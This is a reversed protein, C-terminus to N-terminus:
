FYTVTEGCYESLLNNALKSAGIRFYEPTIAEEGLVGKVLASYELADQVTTVGGAVKIGAKKNRLQEFEKLTQCMILVAEKTAAPQLKGTSTKIFDAGSELALISAVRIEDLTLIGTELIVKLRAERCASKLEVLEDVLEEYKKDRLKGVSLVVDIERAGDMVALSTEAIKVEMFTQAHPFGATVAAIAVDEILVDKVLGVFSPYVCLAAVLPMTPFHEGFQNVKEVWKEISEESDNTNLSTLDICSMLNELIKHKQNTNYDVNILTEVQENLRISDLNSYEKLINEVAEM